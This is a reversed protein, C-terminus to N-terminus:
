RRSSHNPSAARSPLDNYDPMHAKLGRAPTTKSFGAVLQDQWRDVSFDFSDRPDEDVLELDTEAMTLKGFALQGGRWYIYNKAIPRPTLTRPEGAGFTQVLANGEIRVATIKGNMAPPPLLMAPDLLLDNGDVTIGHGPEVKLLSDVGLGFLKLLGNVPVGFGKVSETHIRIRGDPTASVSSKIDFPLPVAKKVSGKQRLTGDEDISVKLSRVNSHDRLTRTMLANLSDLDVAIEGTDVTVTYTRPDDLYPAQRTGRPVFRGRLHRIHLTIDPTVRLDVNRMAVEVPPASATARTCATSVLAVLALCAARM